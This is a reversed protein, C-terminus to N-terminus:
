KSQMKNQARQMIELLTNYTINNPQRPDTQLRPKHQADSAGRQKLRYSYKRQRKDTSYSDQLGFARELSEQISKEEEIDGSNIPQSEEPSANEPIEDQSRLGLIVRNISLVSEPLKTPRKLRFNTSPEQGSQIFSRNQPADSKSETDPHLPQHSHSPTGEDSQPSDPRLTEVLNPNELSLNASSEDLGDKPDVPRETEKFRSRIEKPILPNKQQGWFLKKPDEPTSTTSPLAWIHPYEPGAVSQLGAKVRHSFLELKESRDKSGLFVCSTEKLQVQSRLMFSSFVTRLQEVLGFLLVLIIIWLVTQTAKTAVPHDGGAVFFDDFRVRLPITLNFRGAEVVVEAAYGWSAKESLRMVFALRLSQDPRVVVMRVRRVAFCDGNLHGPLVNIRRIKISRKGTNKLNFHLVMPKHFHAAYSVEAFSASARFESEIRQEGYDVGLGITKLQIELRDIFTFSVNTKTLVVFNDALVTLNANADVLFADEIELTKSAPIVFTERSLLPHRFIPKSQLYHTFNPVHRLSTVTVNARPPGGGRKQAQPLAPPVESGFIRALLAGWWSRAPKLKPVLSNYENIHDLKYVDVSDVMAHPPYKNHVTVNVFPHTEGGLRERLANRSVTDKPLDICITATNYDCIPCSPSSGFKWSGSLAPGKNALLEVFSKLAEFPVKNSHFCWTEPPKQSIKIWLHRQLEGNVQTIDSFISPVVFFAIELPHPYPNRVVLSASRYPHTTAPDVLLRPSVEARKFRGRLPLSLTQNVTTFLVVSANFSQIENRKVAEWVPDCIVTRQIDVTNIETLSDGKPPLYGTPDILNFPTVYLMLNDAPRQPRIMADILTAQFVMKARGKPRISTIEVDIPYSSALRVAKTYNSGPFLVEFEHVPPLSTVTGQCNSFKLDIHTPTPRGQDSDHRFLSIRRNFFTQPKDNKPDPPFEVRFILLFHGQGEMLQNIAVTRNVRPDFSLHNLCRLRLEGVPGRSFVYLDVALSYSPDDPGLDIKPFFYQSFSNNILRARRYQTRKHPSFPDFHIPKFKRCEFADPKSSGPPSVPAFYAWRRQSRLEELIVPDPEKKHGLWVDRLDQASGTWRCESPQEHNEMSNQTPTPAASEGMKGVPKESPSPIHKSGGPQSGADECLLVRYAFEIGFVFTTELTHATVIFRNRFTTLDAGPHKFIVELIRTTYESEFNEFESFSLSNMLNELIYNGDNGQLEKVEIHSIFLHSAMNQRVMVGHHTDNVGVDYKGDARVSFISESFAAHLKLRESIETGNFQLHAVLSARLVSFHISPNDFSVVIKAILTRGTRAPLLSHSRIAKVLQIRFDPNPNIISLGTLVVPKERLNQAFVSVEQHLNRTCMVGFDVSLTEWFYTPDRFNVIFNYGFDNRQIEYDLPAKVLRPWSPERHDRPYEPILGPCEPHETYAPMQKDLSSCSDPVSVSLDQYPRSIFQSEFNFPPLPSESSKGWVKPCFGSDFVIEAFRKREGAKVAWVQTGEVSFKKTSWESELSKVEFDTPSNVRFGGDASRINAINKTENNRNEIALHLFNTQDCSASHLIQPSSLSFGALRTTMFSGNLTYVSLFKGNVRYLFYVKFQTLGMKKPLIDIKISATRNAKTLRVPDETCALSGVLSHPTCWDVLVQDSSSFADRLDVSRVSDDMALTVHLREPKYITLNFLELRAPDTKFPARFLVMNRDHPNYGNTVYYFLKPALKSGLNQPLNVEPPMEYSFERLRYVGFFDTPTAALLDPACALADVMGADAKPWEAEGPSNPHIYHILYALVCLATVRAGPKTVRM